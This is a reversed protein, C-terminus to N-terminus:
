FLCECPLFPCNERHWRSKGLRLSNLALLVILESMFQSLYIFGWWPSNTRKISKLISLTAEWCRCSDHTEELPNTQTYKWSFSVNVVVRRHDLLVKCLCQQTANFSSTMKVNIDSWGTLTKHLLEFVIVASCMSLCMPLTCNPTVPLAPFQPLSSLM